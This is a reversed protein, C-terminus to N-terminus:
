LFKLNKMYTANDQVANIPTTGEYAEQEVIYYQMGYETGAKLISGFDINGTGLTTSESGKRDKVHSLRFRNPYKKFWAVPDQGAAVVWYIDMEYDVNDKNTSQMMVDQPLQGEVPKFSYDHNHYAFKLGRQACIAGCENFREAAKKYFDLSQNPGLYPCILYKMGIAGAEDAKREFDKNMDCHSSVMKMGLDTVYRDYEKNTMGWFMGQPGEYGELQKYGFSAVQRLVGKPDKPLVDRLTYMQLGFTEAPKGTIVNSVTKCGVLQSSLGTLALGSGIVGATQLFKRRNYAM